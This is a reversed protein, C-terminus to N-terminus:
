QHAEGGHHQQGADAAEAGAPGKSGIPFIPLALDVTGAKEFTLTVPLTEGAALPAALGIFMLHLGGPELSVSGGAPIEVGGEVPRMTMRNDTVAMEHIESTEAAPTAVAILRDADGGQNDIALYGGATPAGPPTARTWYGSLVLPGLEVHVPADQAIAPLALAALAAAMALRRAHLLLM